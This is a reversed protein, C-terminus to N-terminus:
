IATYYLFRAGNNELSSHPPTGFRDCNREPRLWEIQGNLDGGSKISLGDNM